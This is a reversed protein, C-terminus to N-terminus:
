SLDPKHLAHLETKSSYLLLGYPVKPQIYTSKPPLKVKATALCMLEAAGIPYLTFVISNPHEASEQLLQGWQENHWCSLRHDSRPDNIGFIPELIHDQLLSVDPISDHVSSAKLDLRYWQRKYLLGFCGAKAPRFPQNDSVPEISFLSSLKNFLTSESTPSYTLIMRHFANCSLQGASVYLTSIWQPQDSNHLSLAAALRHHGDAVYANKIVRFASTFQGITESDTIAWIRHTHGNCCDVQLPVRISAQEILQNVKMDRPYTMLVPSAELGVQQRYTSLRKERDSLTDEHTIINGKSFEELSTITWVGFQSRGDTEREYLYLAPATQAHYLGEQQLTKVNQMIENAMVKYGSGAPPELMSRLLKSNRNSLLEKYWDPRPHLASFAQIEM